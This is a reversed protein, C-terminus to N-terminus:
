HWNSLYMPPLSKQMKKMTDSFFLMFVKLWARHRSATMVVSNLLVKETKGTVDSPELMGNRPRFEDRFHVNMNGHM